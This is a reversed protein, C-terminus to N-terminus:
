APKKWVLYGFIGHRVEFRAGPLVAAYRRRFEEFTLHAERRKHRSMRTDLFMNKLFAAALRLPNHLTLMELYYRLAALPPNGSLADVIIIAGGPALRAKVRELAGAADSIHHMVSVAVAADFELASPLADKEIDLELVEAQKLDRLVERAVAAMGRSSDAATLRAAGGFVARARRGTGCGIDLLRKGDPAALEKIDPNHIAELWDAEGGYFPAWGDWESPDNPSFSAEKGLFRDFRSVAPIKETM